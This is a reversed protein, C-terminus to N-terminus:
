RILLSENLLEESVNVLHVIGDLLLAGDTGLGLRVDDTHELVHALLEMGLDLGLALVALRGLLHEHLEEVLSALGDSKTCGGLSKGLEGLLNAVLRNKNRVFCSVLLLM